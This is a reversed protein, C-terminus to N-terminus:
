INSSDTILLLRIDKELEINDANFIWRGDGTFEGRYSGDLQIIRDKLFGTESIIEVRLKSVNGHWLGGTHLIYELYYGEANHEKMFSVFPMRYSYTIIHESTDRGSCPIDYRYVSSYHKNDILFLSEGPASVTDCICNEGNWTVTFNNMKFWETVPFALTSCYDATNKFICRVHVHVTKDRKIRITLYEEDLIVKKNDCGCLLFLLLVPLFSIKISRTNIIKKM